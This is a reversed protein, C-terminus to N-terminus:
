RARSGWTVETLDGVAVGRQIVVPDAVGDRVRVVFTRETTQVIATRPVFLSPTVRRVPWAVEAYMGPALAGDTNDVDLEVAMTRTRPEVTHSPRAITGNFRRGPWARVTFTAVAGQAINGAVSEPVAVTLRLRAVQEIRLMPTAAGGTAPGVLAGPHVNREDGRGDFPATVVLYQELDRLARVHANDAQVAAEAIEVDHGAVVGPTQAAARLRTLTSQDGRM